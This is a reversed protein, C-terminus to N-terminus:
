AAPIREVLRQLADYVDEEAEILLAHGTESVVILEADPLASALERAETVPVFRDEEGVLVVAPAPMRRPDMDRLGDTSMGRGAAAAWDHRLLSEFAADILEPHERRTRSGFGIGASERIEDETPIRDEFLSARVAPPLTSEDLDAPDDDIRGSCGYLAADVLEPHQLALVQLVGSGMSIGVFVASGVGLSRLVAATDDAMQLLSLSDPAPGSGGFGRQDFAIVRWRPALRDILGTFSRWSGGNGHLLVVTRANEGPGGTDIGTCHMGEVSFVQEERVGTVDGM